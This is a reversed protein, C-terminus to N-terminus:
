RLCQEFGLAINKMLEFWAHEKDSINSGIPDLAVARISTRDVLADVLAPKPQQYILCEIGQSEIKSTIEQLHKLGPGAGEEHALTAVHNLQYENEFYQFADHYAIFPQESLAPVKDLTKRIETDTAEIMQILRALNRNYIDDNDPDSAILSRAIHKSIAIANRSSLWIHQDSMKDDPHHTEHKEPNRSRKRLVTLGPAQIASIVLTNREHDEKKQATIKNLYSEMQSGFRIIIDADALMKRQSPMLNYHHGAPLQEILLEPTSVGETIHTVLSYLPKLTAVIHKSSEEPQNSGAFSYQFPSLLLSLFALHFIAIYIIKSLLFTTNQSHLM